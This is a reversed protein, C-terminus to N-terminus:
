WVIYVCVTYLIIIITSMGGDIQVPFSRETILKIHECQAIREGHAIGVQLKPQMSTLTAPPM